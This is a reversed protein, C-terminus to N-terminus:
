KECKAGMKAYKAILAYVTKRFLRIETVTDCSIPNCMEIVILWELHRIALQRDDTLLVRVIAISDSMLSLHLHERYALDHVDRSGYHFQHIWQHTMEQSVINKSLVEVLTKYVRTCRKHAAHSHHLAYATRPKNLKRLGSALLPYGTCPFSVWRMWNEKHERLFSVFKPEHRVTHSGNASPAACTQLGTWVYACKTQSGNPASTYVLSLQWHIDSVTHNQARLFFCDCASHM